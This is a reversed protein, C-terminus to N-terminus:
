EGHANPRLTLVAIKSARVVREAVSGLFFRTVGTRAHTSMVILDAHLEDATLNIVDAPNGRRTHLEYRAKGELDHRAIKRLEQKGPEDSGPPYSELRYGEDAQPVRHVHLVHLVADNAKALRAAYRLAAISNDDFDVPCLITGFFKEM